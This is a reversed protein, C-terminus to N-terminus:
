LPELSSLPHKREALSQFYETSRVTNLLHQLLDDVSLLREIQISHALPRALTKNKLGAINKQNLLSSRAVLLEGDLSHIDEAAVVPNTASLLALYDAYADVQLPNWVAPIGDLVFSQQDRSM